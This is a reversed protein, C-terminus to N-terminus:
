IPRVLGSLLHKQYLPDAAHGPRRQVRCQARDGRQATPVQEPACKPVVQQCRTYLKHVYTHYRGLSTDHGIFKIPLGHPGIDWLCCPLVWYRPLVSPPLKTRSGGDTRKLGDGDTGRLLATDVGANQVAAEAREKVAGESDRTAVLCDICSQDQQEETDRQLQRIALQRTILPVWPTLEDTHNGLVWQVGEFQDALTDVCTTSFEIDACLLSRQTCNALWCVTVWWYVTRV